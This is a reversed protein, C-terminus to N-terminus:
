LQVHKLEKLQYIYGILGGVIFMCLGILSLWSSNKLLGGSWVLTGLVIIVPLLPRHKVKRFNIRLYLFLIILPVLSIINKGM